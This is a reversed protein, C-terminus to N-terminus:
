PILNGPGAMASAVFNGEGPDDPDAGVASAMRVDMTAELMSREVNPGMEYTSEPLDVIPGFDRLAITPVMLVRATQTRFRFRVRELLDFAELRPDISQARLVLTFQRQGVAFEDNKNTKANYKVRREDVGVGKYSQVNAIIWANETGPRLGLMPRPATKWVVQVCSILRLIELLREKPFRPSPQTQTPPAPQSV